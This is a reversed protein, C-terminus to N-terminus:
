LHMVAARAYRRFTIAGGTMAVGTSAVIVLYSTLDGVSGEYLNARFIVLFHYLPNLHILTAYGDPVIEIPYFVPALYTVLTLLVGTLVITDPFRVAVPALALGVGLAFVAALLAPILVLPTTPTLGPGAILMIVLLPVLGVLFSVFIDLVTAAPFVLAPVRVRTLLGSNIDLSSAVGTILNRVLSAISLGSLLYVVYPADPTSFRFAKSFVVWLVAMELMPQILTWWVGLASRQYRLTLQRRALEVVFRRRRWLEHADRRTSPARSSDYVLGSIRVNQCVGAIPNADM